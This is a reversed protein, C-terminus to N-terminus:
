PKATMGALEARAKDLLVPKGNGNSWLGIFERYADIAGQRNGELALVRALELQALPGEYSTPEIELHALIARFEAEAEPLRRTALFAEGRLYHEDESPVKLQRTLELASITEEPKGAMLAVEGRLLPGFRLNWLTSQPHAALQDKLYKEAEAAQGAKAIAYLDEYNERDPQTRQLLKRGRQEEEMDFYAAASGQLLSNATQPSGLRRFTADVLDLLKDADAFRGEQQAFVAENALLIGADPHAKGWLEQEAILSDDHMLHGVRLLLYRISETDFGRSIALQCTARSGALDGTKMQADALAQYPVINNPALERMRQATKLAHADDGLQKYVETMGSWPQPSRPYLDIWAQYDRLSQYLDEVIDTDYKAAIFLRTPETTGARLEYAKRMYERTSAPDLSNGSYISLNLYAAAFNPDISVAQKLLANGEAFKGSQALYNAQSFDKLAEISATDVAALPQNFRAITRHSEGLNHRIVAGLKEIASPLDEVLAAEENAAGLNSGDVCSTAEETLVYRSGAHAVTGHLVAQSSTRECLDQAIQGTLPDDPKLKMQARTQRVTAASVVSVFPSQALEIRLISNLTRDLVPDGTSGELDTLVVQVPPGGVHDEWRHWGLWGSVVLLVLGMAALSVVWPSQWPAIHEETDEHVLVRTQTAELAMTGPSHSQGSLSPSPAETVTAAFQYGRGPLTVIPGDSGSGFVKRLLFVNQSLNSEEVFSDPWINSLLESKLLPRGPNSAMYVLLDFAKGTVPLVEAGQRLQRLPLDLTYDAFCLNKMESSM